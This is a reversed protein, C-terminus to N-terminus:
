GGRYRNIQAFGNSLSNPLMLLHSPGPTSMFALVTFVYLLWIDLNM